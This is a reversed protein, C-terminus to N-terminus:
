AMRDLGLISADIGVLRWTLVLLLITRFATAGCVVVAIEAASGQVAVLTVGVTTIVLSIGFAWTVIMDHRAAHLLSVSIGGAAAIVSAGALIATAASAPRFAEGFALGILPGGFLYLVAAIGLTPLLIALGSSWALRRLRAREGRSHLASAMAPVMVTIMSGPLNAFVAVAMAVRYLGAEEMSSLAGILILPLSAEAARIITTLGMKASARRWARRETKGSRMRNPHRWVSTVARWGFPLTVLIALASLAMAADPEIAGFALVGLLLLGSQVAPRIAVDLAQGMVVAGTGRVIAGTIWLVTMLLTLAMTALALGLPADSGLLVYGGVALAAMAGLALANGISWVALQAASEHEDLACYSAVERTAHLQLGGAAFTAGLSAAAMAAGYLGYGAVGLGRALQIGVLFAM